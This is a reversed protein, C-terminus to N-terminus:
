MMPFSGMRSLEYYYTSWVCIYTHMQRRKFQMDPYSISGPHSLQLKESPLLRNKILLIRLILSSDAKDAGSAVMVANQLVTPM